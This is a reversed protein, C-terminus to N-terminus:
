DLAMKIGKGGCSCIYGEWPRIWIYGELPLDLHSEPNGILEGSASIGQVGVSSGM